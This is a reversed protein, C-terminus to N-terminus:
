ADDWATALSRIYDLAEIVTGVEAGCVRGQLDCRALLVLDEFHESRKLGGRIRGTSM